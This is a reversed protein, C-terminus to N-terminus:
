KWRHRHILSPMDHPFAYGDTAQLNCLDEVLENLLLRQRACADVAIRKPFTETTEDGIEGRQVTLQERLAVPNLRLYVAPAKRM